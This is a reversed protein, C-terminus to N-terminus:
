EYFLGGKQMYFGSEVPPVELMCKKLSTMDIRTYTKTSCSSTHGLVDSIVPLITQEELLLSALSHRFIHSGHRRKGPKVGASRMAKNVADYITGSCMQGYPSTLLLFINPLTSVQRGYKLYDIIAEGAEKLLPLELRNGTKYQNIIIKNEEWRINEFKLQCIDSARLGYRSLLMLIAYDRKGQGNSRDINDLMGRIESVTYVSPLKEQKRYIDDPMLSSLNIAIIHHEYWYRFMCRLRTICSSRCARRTTDLSQLFRIVTQLDIEEIKTIGTMNLYRIFKSMYLRDNHLTRPSLRNERKRYSLYSEIAVGINGSFDEAKPEITIEKRQYFEDIFKISRVLTKEYRKYQEPKKEALRFTLFKAGVSKDYEIYSNQEMFRSLGGWLKRYAHITTLAYSLNSRLYECTENILDEIRKSEQLTSDM